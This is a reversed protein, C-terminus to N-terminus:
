RNSEWWERQEDSPGPRFRALTEIRHIVKKLIEPSPRAESAWIQLLSPTTLVAVVGSGARMAMRRAKRDDTAIALRRSDALTLAMAEGDDLSIAYDVYAAYENEGELELVQLVGHQLLDDLCVKRPPEHTLESRVYMTEALVAPCIYGGVHLSRIVQHAQESAILNILVSADYV